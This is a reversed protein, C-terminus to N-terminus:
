DILLAKEGCAQFYNTNKFKKKKVKKLSKRLKKKCIIKYISKMTYSAQTKSTKGINKM